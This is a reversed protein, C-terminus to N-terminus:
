GGSGGADDHGTLAHLDHVAGSHGDDAGINLAVQGVVLLRGSHLGIGLGRGSHLAAHHGAGEGTLDDGHGLHAVAHEGLLHHAVAEGHLRVVVLHIGGHVAFHGHHKVGLVGEGDLGVAAQFHQHVH